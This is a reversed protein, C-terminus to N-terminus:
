VYAKAEQKYSQKISLKVRAAHMTSFKKAIVISPTLERKELIIGKDCNDTAPTNKKNQPV